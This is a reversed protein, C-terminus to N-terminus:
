KSKHQAPCPARKHKSPLNATGKKRLACGRDNFRLGRDRNLCNLPQTFEFTVTKTLNVFEKSRKKKASELHGEESLKPPDLNQL